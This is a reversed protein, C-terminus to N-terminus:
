ESAKKEEWWRKKAESMKRRADDSLENKRKTERIKNITEASVIRGKVANSIKKLTEESLHDYLAYADRQLAESAANSTSRIAYVRQQTRTMPIIMKNPLKGFIGVKSKAEIM